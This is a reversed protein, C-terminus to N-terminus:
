IIYYRFLIDNVLFSYWEKICERYTKVIDKSGIDSSQNIPNQQLEQKDPIKLIFWDPANWRDYKLVAFYSQTIFITYINLKKGSIFM